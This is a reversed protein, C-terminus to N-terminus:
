VVVVVDDDDHAAYGYRSIKCNASTEIILVSDCEGFQKMFVNDIDLKIKNLMNGCHTIEFVSYQLRGGFKKLYKSFKTRLKDSHIDYSILIM